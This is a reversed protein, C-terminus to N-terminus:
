TLLPVYHDILLLIFLIFLYFISYQFYNLAFLMKKLVYLRISQYLLAINLLTIGILYILGAMDMVFPMYTIAILLFTYLLIATKTYKIGHTVCFTRENTKVHEEHNYISLSWIHPPGWAFIIGVLSLSSFDIRGTIATWGFVPFLASMLGAIIITSRSHKKAFIHFVLFYIILMLTSIVGALWNVLFFLITVSSIGLCIFLIIPGKSFTFDNIHAKARLILLQNIVTGACALFIVGVLAFVFVHWSILTNTTAIVMGAFATLFAMLIARPKCLEIYDSSVM